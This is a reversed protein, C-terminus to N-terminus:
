AEVADGSVIRNYIRMFRPLAKDELDKVHQRQKATLQEGNLYKRLTTEGLYHAAYLTAPDRGFKNAHADTFRQVADFSEALNMPDKLGIAKATANVFQFGGKASSNPNKADPRRGSEAEYLASYYPDKDIEAEVASIAKKDMNNNRSFLDEYLTDSPSTEQSRSQTQQGSGPRRIEQQPETRAFVRPSSTTAQSQSRLTETSLQHGRAGYENVPSATEQAPDDDRTSELAGLAAGRKSAELAEKGTRGIRQMLKVVEEPSDLRLLEYAVEPDLSARMLFDMIQATTKEDSNKAFQEVGEVLFRGGPIVQSAVEQGLRKVVEGRQNTTPQGASARYARKTVSAESALDESIRQMMAFHDEGFLERLAGENNYLFNKMKAPTISGETSERGVLDLVGRKYREMLEPDSRIADRLQKIGKSDGTLTAKVLNQENGAKLLKAGATGHAFTEAQKQTVARAEKWIDYVEAPTGREVAEDTVGILAGLLQQSYPERINVDDSLARAASRIDQLAGTTIYGTDSETIQEVLEQVKPHIKGGGQKRALIQELRSAPLTADVPIDRPFGEWIIGEELDMDDFVKQARANLDRGLGERNVAKSESMGSLIDDRTTRRTEVLRDLEDAGAGTSVAQQQLQGMRPSKTVEATTMLEALKDDPLRDIYERLEEATLGTERRLVEGAMRRVNDEPVKKILSEVGKYAGRVGSAIGPGAAAGVIPAVTSEKFTDEAAQAGFASYLSERLLKPADDINKGLWRLPKIAVGVPAAFEGAIESYRDVIHDSRPALYRDLWNIAADTKDFSFADAAEEPRGFLTAYVSEAADVPLEAIDVLTGATGVVGRAAGSAFQKIPEIMPQRNEARDLEALRADIQALRDAPRIRPAATDLEALRADIESLRQQMAEYDAM